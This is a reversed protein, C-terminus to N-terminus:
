LVPCFVTFLISLDLLIPCSLSLKVDVKAHKKVAIVLTYNRFPQSPVIDVMIQYNELM